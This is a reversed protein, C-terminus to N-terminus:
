DAVTNCITRMTYIGSPCTCYWGKVADQADEGAEYKVFVHYTKNNSHRSEMLAHIIGRHDPSRHYSVQYDGDQNLHDAIYSASQNVQYVGLALDRVDQLTLHPFDSLEEGTVEQWIVRRTIMREDIALIQLSNAMQKRALARQAYFMQLPTGMNPPDRFCNLLALCIRFLDGIVPILSNRYRYRFIKYVGKVRGFALEVPWRVMTVTRSHNAEETTLQQRRARYSPTIMDYGRRSVHDVVKRFGLDAIIVDEPNFYTRFASNNDGLMDGFIGEDNNRYDAYFPGETHLVYGDPACVIMFKICRTSKQQSWTKRSAYHNNSKEIPILTSDMLVIAKESDGGAFLLTAVDRGHEQVLRERPLHGYGLHNRTFHTMLIKRISHFTLRASQGNSFNLLEALAPFPIDHSLKLLFSGLAIRLSRSSTNRMHPCIIELLTNFQPVQIKCLSQCSSETEFPRICESHDRELQEAKDSVAGLLAMAEADSILGNTARQLVLEQSAEDLLGSRLHTSCSRCDKPIFVRHQTWAKVRASQSIKLRTSNSLGCVCCYKQSRTLMQVPIHRENGDVSDPTPPPTPPPSPPTPPPSPPTFTFGDTPGGSGTPREGRGRNTRDIAFRNGTRRPRRSRPVRRTLVSLRNVSSCSLNIESFANQVNEVGNGSHGGTEPVVRTDRQRALYVELLAKCSPPLDIPPKQVPPDKPFFTELPQIPFRNKQEPIFLAIQSPTSAPFLPDLPQPPLLNKEEPIFLALPIPKPLEPFLGGIAPLGPRGQNKYSQRMGSYYPDSSLPHDSGSTRNAQAPDRYTEWIYKNWEKDEPFSSVEM